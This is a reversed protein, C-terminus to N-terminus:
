YRERLNEKKRNALNKLDEIEKQSLRRYEGIKLGDACLGAFVLRKLRLCPFGVAELMRRVQRNKGEHITIEVTSVGNKYSCLKVEAPATMGDKLKVGRQLRRIAEPMIKGEALALYTKKVEKGPHLLANTLEGDNTLLLVGSTDYDLRGVPFVREEVGSLLDLVTRRGKEDKASCIFGAPKNLLIYVFDPKQALLHGDVCIIDEGIKVKFGLTDVRRGNVTIRGQRILDEAARRSCLGFRAVTKQLRETNDDHNQRLDSKKDM